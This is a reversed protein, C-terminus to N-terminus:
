RINEPVYPTQQGAEKEAAFLRDHQISNYTWITGYLFLLLTLAGLALIEWRAQRQDERENVINSYSIDDETADWQSAARVQNTVVQEQIDPDPPLGDALTPVVGIAPPRKFLKM